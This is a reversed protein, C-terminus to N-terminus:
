SLICVESNANAAIRSGLKTRSCGSRYVEMICLFDVIMIELERVNNCDSQRGNSDMGAIHVNLSVQGAKLCLIRGLIRTM